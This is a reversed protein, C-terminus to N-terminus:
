DRNSRPREATPTARGGVNSWYNREWRHRHYGNSALSLTPTSVSVHQLHKEDNYGYFGSDSSVPIHLGANSGDLLDSPTGPNSTIEGFRKSSNQPESSTMKATSERPTIEAKRYSFKAKPVSNGPSPEAIFKPNDHREIAARSRGFVKNKQEGTRSFKGGLTKASM